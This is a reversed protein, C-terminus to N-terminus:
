HRLAERAVRLARLEGGRRVQLVVDDAVPGNMRARADDISSVAAGDVSVVTDGPALGGREAASGEVVAVIQVEM